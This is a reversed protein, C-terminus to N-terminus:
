DKKSQKSLDYNRVPDWGGRSKRAGGGLPEAGGQVAFNEWGGRLVWGGGQLFFIALGGQTKARYRM